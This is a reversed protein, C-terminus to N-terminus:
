SLRLTPLVDPSLPVIFLWPYGPVHSPTVISTLGALAAAARREPSWWESAGAMTECRLNGAVNIRHTEKGRECCLVCDALCSRIKHDVNREVADEKISSLYRDHVSADVLRTGRTSISTYCEQDVSKLCGM